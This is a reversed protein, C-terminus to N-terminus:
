VASRGHHQHGAPKVVLAAVSRWTKLDTPGRMGARLGTVISRLKRGHTHQQWATGILIRQIQRAVPRQTMPIENPEPLPNNGELDDRGERMRQVQFRRAASDYYSTLADGVQHTISESHLRYLYRRVPEFYVRCTEGLRLQLDIDEGTKFFERFGGVERVNETRIV